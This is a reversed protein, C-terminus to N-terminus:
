VLRPPTATRTPDSSRLIASLAVLENPVETTGLPGAVMRGGAAICSRGPAHCTDVRNALVVTGAWSETADIAVRDRVGVDDVAATVLALTVGRERLRDITATAALDAGGLVIARGAPTDAVLDVAAVPSWATNADVTRRREMRVNGRTDVLVHVAVPEDGDIMASGFACWAGLRRMATSVTAVTRSARNAVHLASDRDIPRRDAPHQALVYIAPGPRQTGFWSGLAAPSAAAGQVAVATCPAPGGGGIM